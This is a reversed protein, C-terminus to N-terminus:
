GSPIEWNRWDFELIAGQYLWKRAFGKWNM